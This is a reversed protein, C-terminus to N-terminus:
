IIPELLTLAIEGDESGERIKEVTPRLEAIQVRLNNELANTNEISDGITLPMLTKRNWLAKLKDWVRKYTAPQGDVMVKDAVMANVDVIFQWIGRWDPRKSYVLILAYLDPSDTATGGRDLQPILQVTRFKKGDHAGPTSEFWLEQGAATFTGLLTEAGDDIKYYLNVKSTSSLTGDVIVKYAAGTLESFGGDVRPGYTKLPGDQFDDTGM